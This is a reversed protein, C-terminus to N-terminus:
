GEHVIGAAAKAAQDRNGGESVASFLVGAVFIAAFVWLIDPSKKKM